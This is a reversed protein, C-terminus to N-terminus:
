AQPDPWTQFGRKGFQCFGIASREGRVDFEHELLMDRFVAVHSSLHLRRGTPFPSTIAFRLNGIPGFRHTVAASSEALVPSLALYKWFSAFRTGNAM